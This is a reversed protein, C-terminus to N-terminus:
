GPQQRQAQELSPLGFVGHQLPLPLLRITAGATATAPTFELTECESVMQVPRTSASRVFRAVRRHPWPLKADGSQIQLRRCMAHDLPQAATLAGQLTACNRRYVGMSNRGFSTAEDRAARRVSSM